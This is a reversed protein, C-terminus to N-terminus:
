PQEPVRESVGSRSDPQGATETPLETILANLESLERRIEAADEAIADLRALVEATDDTFWGLGIGALVFGAFAAVTLISTASRGRRGEPRQETNGPGAELRKTRDKGKTATM